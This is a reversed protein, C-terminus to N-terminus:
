IGRHRDKFGRVPKIQDGSEMAIRHESKKRRMDASKHVTKGQLMPYTKQAQKQLEGHNWCPADAGRVAELNRIEWKDDSGKGGGRGFSPKTKGKERPATTKKRGPV